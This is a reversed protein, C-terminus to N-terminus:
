INKDFEVFLLAWRELLEQQSPYNELEREKLVLERLPRPNMDEPFVFQNVKM